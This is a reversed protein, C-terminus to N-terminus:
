PKRQRPVARDLRRVGEPFCQEFLSASDDNIKGAAPVLVIILRRHGSTDGCAGSELVGHGQVDGHAARSVGHQMQQRSSLFPVNRERHSVDIPQRTSCRAQALHRRRLAVDVHLVNMASATHNAM